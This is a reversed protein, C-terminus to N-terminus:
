SLKWSGATDSFLGPTLEVAGKASAVDFVIQGSRKQGARLSNTSDLNNKECGSFMGSLTDATTGDTGVFDFYLPNISGTGSKQVAKINVVLYGGSKPASLGGCSKRFKFSVLTIEQVSGGDTVTLATGVKLDFQGDEDDVPEAPKPKAPAKTKTPKAAKTPQAAKTEAATAGVATNAVTKNNTDTMAGLAGVGVCMLAIAGAVAALIKGTGWGKKPPAPPPYYGPHPHPGPPPAGYQQGYQQGPQQYPGPSYPQVPPGSM